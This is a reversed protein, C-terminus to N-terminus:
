PSAQRSLYRRLCRSQASHHQQMHQAGNQEALSLRQEASALTSMAADLREDLTQM